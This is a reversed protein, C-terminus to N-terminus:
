RGPGTVEVPGLRWARGAVTATLVDGERKLRLAPAGRAAAGPGVEILHALITPGTLRDECALRHSGALGPTNAVYIIHALVAQRLGLAKFEGVCSILGDSAPSFDTGILLKEIM